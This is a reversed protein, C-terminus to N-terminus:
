ARASSQTFLEREDLAAKVQARLWRRRPDAYLERAAAASYPTACGSWGLTCAVLDDLEEAESDEPDIVPLKQTKAILARVKRQRAFERRKRDPHEPGALQVVMATAAGTLPDKVRVEATPVDEFALPDFDNLAQAAQM